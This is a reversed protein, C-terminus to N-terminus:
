FDGQIRFRVFLDGSKSDSASVLPTGVDLAGSLHKFLKLRVGAGASVLRHDADQGKLPDHIGTMGSDLFGYLRLENVLGTGLLGALEPSRNETQLAYGYDGLAESEFYGRVSSMGGPSFGENSILPDPSPWQGSFRMNIQIDKAIDETREADLQAGPLKQRAKTASPM